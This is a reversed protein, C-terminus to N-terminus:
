PFRHGPHWCGSRVRTGARRHRDAVTAACRSRFRGSTSRSRSTAPSARSATALAADDELALSSLAVVPIAATRGRQALKRAADTGDMDPLRLDMLVVDPLHEDALAIGEAGTAAELTRFGAAVLVDRALKLNKANDDVILVLPPADPVTTDEVGHRDPQHQGVVVVEHAFSHPAQELRLGVELDGGHAAVEVRQEGRDVRLPRVDDDGVDAHRRPVVVLPDLGGLPQALRMRLDADDHEALVRRRAVREREELVAARAAGVEQLLAHLVDLLEDGRDPRDCLAARNISGLTTSASTASPLRLSCEGSLWSVGRSRSTSRSIASPFFLAAIASARKRVSRDTSFTIWEIKRM